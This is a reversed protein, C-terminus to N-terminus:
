TQGALTYQTVGKAASADIFLRPENIFNVGAKFDHGLGGRGGVLWSFDDRFQYKVQETTQPAALSRARDHRREFVHLQEATTRATIHDAFDSYQFVIENLKGGGLVLNHNINFSNFRNRADGWNDPTATPSAGYPFENSNRGYRLTLYQAANLNASVKVTGLNERYPTPYM